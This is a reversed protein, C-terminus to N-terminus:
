KVGLWDPDKNKRLGELSVESASCANPTTNKVCTKTEPPCVLVCLLVPGEAPM